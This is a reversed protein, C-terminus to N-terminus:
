KLKKGSRCAQVFVLRPKGYLKSCNDSSFYDTLTKLEVTMCDVGYVRSGGGHSLIILIVCETDEEDKKLLEAEEDLYTEM